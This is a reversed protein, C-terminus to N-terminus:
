PIKEIRVPLGKLVPFGSIPDNLHDCTLLNVNGDQRGHAIELFGPMIQAPCLIKARVDVAGIESIVRLSQKDEIGLRKADSPHIEVEAGSDAKQFKPINYYRTHCYLSKRAGTTLVFPFERNRRNLYRPAIYEPLESLGYTKLYPSTFEIKGSPTPFPQTEYKKRRLPKYVIGEPHNKLEELSIGTPELIWQNVQEENKWPFYQDGFGLRHALDRWLSYEDYVGPIEVVKRTLTVLQYKPHYHLESRELFSAAPLVYHALKATETLFLDNVVLLALNSLAKAVKKANPNTLAPNAATIILGKLPYEGQGLMYDMAMMSHCEWRRDYLVPFKDAGIPKQDRLSIEDCLSLKRDGMGEPWNVGGKIDLAGCLAELCAIARVTNVGNESQELGVGPYIIVRPRREIIMEAMAVITQSEVGTQQEVFEPTFKQAYRAFAEFGLAYKEILERDYNRTELLYRILGWVLASDTGPLPRAFLDARRAVKTFRPDIVILKGGRKRSEKIESMVPPHSAPPNAGWIITLDAHEYEPSSNWFGNVLLFGLFRGNFCASDNSFYNPSGFAHIFRRAFDEEQFYGIGEGKWVSMSRVGFQKRIRGIKDAIEDLARERSIERFSGDPQKKLPELLRDKHYFVDKAARGKVCIFGRNQPHADFGTIDTIEGDKIHVNVGCRIGCQRCLTQVTGNKIVTNVKM